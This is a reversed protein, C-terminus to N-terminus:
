RSRKRTHQSHHRDPVGSMWRTIRGEIVNRPTGYGSRSRAIIAASRDHRVSNPSTMRALFTEGYVGHTLARVRAEHNGLDTFMSLPAQGWGGAGGGFERCLVRADAEGLRFAVTSGVNGLLAARVEDTMQDIYQHSLTLCLGYKRAESLMSAFSETAFSQFEDVYLYFNFREGIPKSARSLAALHFATILMSGLLNAKDEGIEGKSLNAVLIRRQDMVAGLDLRSSVQGVINRVIPSMVLQGIKNQLPAIAEALLRRGYAGFEHEWFARVMPDNVQRLVWDRYAGDFLMRQAGLVTANEVCTLAAICGYLIYELRPGWSDRWVSKFASVVGSAVLHRRAEPVARLLNFGVPHERDAPNFYIVDRIRSPPVCDLMEVALDGHPDIIAVGAGAEIDQRMMHRLLTSKGTGTKGIVHVHQRRDADCLRFPAQGGWVERDGIHVGDQSM